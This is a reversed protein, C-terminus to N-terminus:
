CYFSIAPLRCVYLIRSFPIHRVGMWSNDGQLTELHQRIEDYHKLADEYRNTTQQVGLHGMACTLFFIDSIFNPTPGTTVNPTSSLWVPIMYPEGSGQEQAWEAVEQATAKIRTEEKVDIHDSHVFYLPDVRDLQRFFLNPNLL